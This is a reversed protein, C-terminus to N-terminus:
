LRKGGTLSNIFILLYLLVMFQAGTKPLFQFKSLAPSQACHCPWAAQGSLAPTVSTILLRHGRAAAPPNTGLFQLLVQKPDTYIFM